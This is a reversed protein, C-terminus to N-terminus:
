SLSNRGDTVSDDLAWTEVLDFRKQSQDRNWTYLGIRKLKSSARIELSHAWEIAQEREAESANRHIRALTVHAIPERTEPPVRAAELLWPRYDRIAKEVVVRGINLRLTIASPAAPHGLMTVDHASVEVAAMRPEEQRVMHEILREWAKYAMVKTCGGFFALTIHLDEPSFVRVAPPLEVPLQPSDDFPFAIFWNPKLM